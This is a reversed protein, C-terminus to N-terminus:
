PAPWKQWALDLPEPNGRQVGGAPVTSPNNPTLLHQHPDPHGSPYGHDTFDIDRTPQLRGTVPDVEWQRAQTYTVSGDTRTGIQTHPASADPIPDGHRTRPLPRDPAYAGPRAGGGESPLLDATPGDPTINNVTTPSTPRLGQQLTHMGGATAGSFAIRGYDLDTIGRGDVLIQSAADSAAGIAIAGRATRAAPIASLAGDLAVSRPNFNDSALGMGASAAAGMLIAAGAPGGVGTAVLTVGVAVVGAMALTGWPDDLM